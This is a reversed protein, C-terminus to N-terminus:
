NVGSIDTLGSNVAARVSKHLATYDPSQKKEQNQPVLNKKHNKFDESM